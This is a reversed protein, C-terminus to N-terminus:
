SHSLDNLCYSTILFLVFWIFELFFFDGQWCIRFRGQSKGSYTNGQVVQQFNCVIFNIILPVVVVFIGIRQNYLTGLSCSQQVPFNYTLYIFVAVDTSLFYFAIRYFTTLNKNSNSRKDRMFDCIQSKLFWSPGSSCACTQPTHWRSVCMFNCSTRSSQQQVWINKKVKFVGVPPWDQSWLICFFRLDFFFDLMIGFCVFSFLKLKVRYVLNIVGVHLIQQPPTHLALSEM